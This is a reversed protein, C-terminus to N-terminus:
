LSLAPLLRGIDIETALCSLLGLFSWRIEFSVKASSVSSDSVRSVQCPFIKLLVTSYVLLAYTYRAFPISDISSLGTDQLPDM